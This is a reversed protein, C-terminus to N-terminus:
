IHAATTDLIDIKQTEDVNTPASCSSAQRPRLAEWLDDVFQDVDGIEHNQFGDGVLNPQVTRPCNQQAAQEQSGISSSELTAVPQLSSHLQRILHKLQQVKKTLKDIECAMDYFQMQAAELKWTQESLRVVQQALEELSCTMIADKREEPQPQCIQTSQTVTTHIKNVNNQMAQDQECAAARNDHFDRPSTSQPPASKLQVLQLKSEMHAKLELLRQDFHAEVAAIRTMVNAEFEGQRECDQSSVGTSEKGTDVARNCDADTRLNAKPHEGETHSYSGESLTAAPTHSFDSQGHQSESDDGFAVSSYNFEWKSLLSSSSYYRRFFAATFFKELRGMKRDRDFLKVATSLPVKDTAESIALYQQQRLRFQPSSFMNNINSQEGWFGAHGHLLHRLQARTHEDGGDEGFIQAFCYLGFSVVDQKDLEKFEQMSAWLARTMQGLSIGEGPSASSLSAFVNNSAMVHLALNSINRALLFKEIIAAGYIQSLTGLCSILFYKFVKPVLGLVVLADILWSVFTFLDFKRMMTETSTKISVGYTTIELPRGMFSNITVLRTWKPPLLQLQMTCVNGGWAEIVFKRPVDNRHYCRLNALIEAGTVQAPQFKNYAGPLYNRGLSEQPMRLLDPHGVLSFAELLSMTIDQQKHYKRREVGQHDLIITLTDGSHGDM